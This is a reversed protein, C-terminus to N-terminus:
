KYKIKKEREALLPDSVPVDIKNTTYDKSISFVLLHSISASLCCKPENKGYQINNLAHIKHIGYYNHQAPTNLIPRLLLLVVLLMDIAFLYTLAM